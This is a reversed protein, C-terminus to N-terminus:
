ATAAVAVPEITNGTDEQVVAQTRFCPAEPLLVQQDGNRMDGTGVLRGAKLVGEPDEPGELNRTGELTWMDEKEIDRGTAHRQAEV